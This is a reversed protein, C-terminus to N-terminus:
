KLTRTGAGALRRADDLGVQAQMVLDSGPPGGQVVQSWHRIAQAYDTREFAETGALLLAKPQRPELALARRVWTMPEGTVRRGQHLALEDAYDALVAADDTRLELAKAYAALAEGHRGLNAYSRALMAWGQTDGPQQKLRDALRQVVASIQDNAMPHPALAVGAPLSMPRAVAVPAARHSGIWWSAASGGALVLAGAAWWLRRSGRANVDATESTM